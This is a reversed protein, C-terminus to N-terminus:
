FDPFLGPMGKTLDELPVASVRDALLYRRRGPFVVAIRELKLDALAIRMSPTLKPADARKCEVGFLRGYKRLLLDIEAGNHTAL